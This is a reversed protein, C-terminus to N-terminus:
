EVSIHGNPWQVAARVAEVRHLAVEPDIDTHSCVHSMLGRGQCRGILERAQDVHRGDVTALPAPRTWRPRAAGQGRVRGSVHSRAAALATNSLKIQDHYSREDLQAYVETGTRTTNAAILNIIVELSVLPKGGWNGSIFSFPRHEIQNWKSTDAALPLGPDLARDPPGPAAAEAEV